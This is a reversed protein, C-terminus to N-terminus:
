NWRPGYQNGIAKLTLSKGNNQLNYRKLMIDRENVNLGSLFDLMCSHTYKKM